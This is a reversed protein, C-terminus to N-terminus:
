NRWIISLLQGLIAALVCLLLFLLLLFVRVWFWSHFCCRLHLCLSLHIAELQFNLVNSAKWQYHCPRVAFTAHRQKLRMLPPHTHPPATLPLHTQPPSSLDMGRPSPFVGAFWVYHLQHHQFPATHAAHLLGLCDYAVRQEQTSVFTQFGPAVGFGLEHLFPPESQTHLQVKIGAEYSTEDLVLSSPVCGADNDTHCNLSPDSGWAPPPDNLGTGGM